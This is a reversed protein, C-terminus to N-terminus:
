ALYSSSQFPMLKRKAELIRNKARLVKAVRSHKQYACIIEQEEFGYRFFIEDAVDIETAIFEGM